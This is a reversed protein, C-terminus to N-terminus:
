RSLHEPHSLDRKTHEPWYRHSIVLVSLEDVVSIGEFVDKIMIEAASSLEFGCRAKLLILESALAQLQNSDHCQLLRKSLSNQYEEQLAEASSLSLIVLAIPHASRAARSVPETVFSPEPRWEQQNWQLEDFDLAHQNVSIADKLTFEEDSGCNLLLRLLSSNLDKRHKMFARVKGLVQEVLFASEDLRRLTLILSVVKAIIQNTGQGINLLKGTIGDVIKVHFDELDTRTMLSILDEIQEASCDVVNDCYFSMFERKAVALMDEEGLYAAFQGSFRSFVEASFANWSQPLCQRCLQSLALQAACKLPESFAAPFEPVTLNKRLLEVLPELDWKARQVFMEPIEPAFESILHRLNSKTLFSELLQPGDLISAEFDVFSKEFHFRLLRRVAVRSYKQAFVQIKESDSLEVRLLEGAETCQEKKKSSPSASIM